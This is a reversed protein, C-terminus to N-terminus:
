HPFTRSSSSHLMPHPSRCDSVTQLPVNLPSIGSRHRQNTVSTGASRNRFPRRMLPTPLCIRHFLKRISAERLLAFTNLALSPSVVTPLPGITIRVLRKGVAFGTREGLGPPNRKAARNGTTSRRILRGKLSRCRRETDTDRRRRFGSRQSQGVCIRRAPPYSWERPRGRAESM